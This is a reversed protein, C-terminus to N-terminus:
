QYLQHHQRRYTDLSLQDRCPTRARQARCARLARDASDKWAIRRWRRQRLVQCSPWHREALCAAAWEVAKTGRRGMDARRRSSGRERNGYQNQRRRRDAARCCATVTVLQLWAAVGGGGGGADGNGQCIDRATCSEAHHSFTILIISRFWYNWHNMTFLTFHSSMNSTVAIITEMLNLNWNVM